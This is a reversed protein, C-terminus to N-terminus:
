IAGNGQQKPSTEVLRALNEFSQGWGRQAEEVPVLRPIGEQVVTVETGGPVEKLTVTFTMEGKMEPNDTEFAEKFQIREFPKLEIYRGGFFHTEKKDISSFSMRYTGGVRADWQYVKGTYGGPPLWKTFQEADVFANYVRERPARIVRSIRLTGTGMKTTQTM